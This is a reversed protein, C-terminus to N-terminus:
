KNLEFILTSVESYRDDKLLPFEVRIEKDVNYIYKRNDDIVSFFTQNDLDFFNSSIAKFMRKYSDVDIENKVFSDIVFPLQYKSVKNILNMYILYFALLDKNLNTGSGNLKNFNGFPKESLGNAGIMVSIKNKIQEYEGSIYEANKKLKKDLQKINVKLDEIKNKLDSSKNNEVTELRKLENLIRQDIYSEIDSISKLKTIEEHYSDLKDQLLNLKERNRKLELEKEHIAKRIDESKAIIMIRNDDLELRTLSQERTLVSHCYSCEHKIESFRKNIASLLNDLEFKDQKHIDLCRKAEEIKCTIRQIEKSIEDTLRIYQEVELKLEHLDQSPIYELNKQLKYTEYVDRIQEIKGDIFSKEEKLLNCKYKKDFIETNSLGLYYYIVDKPFSTTKYAGLSDFTEKYLIGSWGKDQDIYMPSVIAEIYAISPKDSNNTILELKMGMKEQLWLSYDKFNNFIKSEIDGKISMTKNHRKLFFVENNISVKLQFIYKEPIWDKPFAKLNAGLAYYLSKVLSSKGQGNKSSVILNSKESFCFHNAKKNEYDVIVIEHILLKSM